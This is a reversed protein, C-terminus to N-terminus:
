QFYKDGSGWDIMLHYGTECASQKLRIEYQIRHFFCYVMPQQAIEIITSLTMIYMTKRIYEINVM